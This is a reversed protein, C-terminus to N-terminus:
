KDQWYFNHEKEYYKRAKKDCSDTLHRFDADVSKFQKIDTMVPLLEM